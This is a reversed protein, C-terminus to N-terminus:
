TPMSDISYISSFLPHFQLFIKMLLRFVDSPLRSLYLVMVKFGFCYNPIERSQMM